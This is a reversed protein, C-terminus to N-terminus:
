LSYLMSERKMCHQTGLQQTIGEHRQVCIIIRDFMILPTNSPKLIQFLGIQMIKSSTLVKEFSKQQSCIDFDVNKYELSDNNKQLLLLLNMQHLYLSKKM